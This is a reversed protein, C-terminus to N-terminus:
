PPQPTSLSLPPSWLPLPSSLPIKIIITTNNNVNSININCITTTNPPQLASSRLTSTFISPPQPTSTTNRIITTNTIINGITMTNTTINGIIITNTIINSITMTNTTINSITMTNTTINSIIMTNTTINSITM